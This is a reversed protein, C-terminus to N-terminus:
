REFTVEFISALVHLSKCSVIFAHADPSVHGQKLGYLEDALPLRMISEISFSWGLKELLAKLSVHSLMQPLPFSIVYRCNELLNQRPHLRAGGCHSRVAGLLEPAM